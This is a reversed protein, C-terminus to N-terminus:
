KYFSLTETVYYTSVYESIENIIVISQWNSLSEINTM